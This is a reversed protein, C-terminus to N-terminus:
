LFHGSCATETFEHRDEYREPRPTYRREREVTMHWCLACTTEYIFYWCGKGKPHRVQEPM